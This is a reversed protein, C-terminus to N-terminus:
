TIDTSFKNISVLDKADIGFSTLACCLNFLGVM